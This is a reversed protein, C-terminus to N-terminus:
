PATSRRTAPASASERLTAALRRINM